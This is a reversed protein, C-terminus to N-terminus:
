SQVLKLTEEYEQQIAKKMRSTVEEVSMDKCYPLVRKVMEQLDLPKLNEQTTLASVKSLQKM